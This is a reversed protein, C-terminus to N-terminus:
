GGDIVGEAILGGDATIRWQGRGMGATVTVPIQPRVPDEGTALSASFEAFSPIFQMQLERVVLPHCELRIGAPMKLPPLHDRAVQDLRDALM